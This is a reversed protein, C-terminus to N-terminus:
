EASTLRYLPDYTYTIVTTEVVPPATATIYNTRTLTDTGGPGSATHVNM